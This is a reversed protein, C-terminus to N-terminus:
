ATWRRSRFETLYFLFALVPLCLGIEAARLWGGTAYAWGGVASGAAGGMFFITMYLGNLRARLAGDLRFIERQGLVLSTTVAFDLVLAAILLAAVAAGAGMTVGPVTAVCLVMALVAGGLALGTAPRVLGRDALRGAIPSAVVGAVGALAFLAIGRQTLGIPGAALVFPTVTWFLSFLGFMATQYAARRQLVPTTCAIRVISALLAPYGIPHSPQRPPLKRALVFALVVLAVLAIEFVAQWRGFSAIFSSVPRALMIGLMLGSMVNGVARGRTADSAMHAAYPVLVQVAVSGLGTCFAAVFFPGASPALVLGLLSLVSIGILTLVLRRNEVIDGLPVILLLGLGYGLQALTVVLGAMAAPIGLTQAIMAVLPQAYYIDAVLLGCATAILISVATGAAAAPRSM